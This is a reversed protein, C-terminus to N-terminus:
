VLARGFRVLIEDGATHGFTDNYSKFHDVDIMVVSIPMSRRMGFTIFSELREMFYRRNKLGTLPDTTALLQLTSNRDELERQVRELEITRAYLEEEMSLLRRAVNLRASLEARDLPKSLFDDAGVNLAQLRDEKYTKATLLIFYVYRRGARERLRRCLELGDIKPMMWDSIVLRIEPDQLAVWAAEGDEVTVVSYGLQELSKTLFLASIRDDEAVLVKM